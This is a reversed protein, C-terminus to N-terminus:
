AGFVMSFSEAAVDWLKSSYERKSRELVKLLQVHVFEDFKDESGFKDRVAQLVIARDSPKFCGADRCRFGTIWEREKQTLGTRKFPSFSSPWDLSLLLMKGSPADVQHMGHMHTFTALEYVCWLRRFYGPSILGVFKDCSALIRPFAAVGAATKEPSSQDIGTKDIWITSTSLAWPSMASPVLGLLSLLTSLLVCALLGLPIASPVYAAWVPLAAFFGDLALGFPLLFVALVLSIVLTRGVLAQLFLFERLMQVKRRGGDRWSHSVFYTCRQAEFSLDYCTGTPVKGFFSPTTTWIQTMLAFLLRTVRVPHQWQSEAAPAAGDAQAPLSVAEDSGQLATFRQLLTREAPYWQEEPQDKDPDGQSPLYAKVATSVAVHKESSSTPLEHLLTDAMEKLGVLLPHLVAAAATEEKNTAQVSKTASAALRSVADLMDKAETLSSAQAPAAAPAAATPAVAEPNPHVKKAARFCAACVSPCFRRKRADDDSLFVRLLVCSALLDLLGGCIAGSTRIPGYNSAIGWGAMSILLLRRLVPLGFKVMKTGLPYKDTNYYSSPLMIALDIPCSEFSIVASAFVFAWFFGSAAKGSFGSDHQLRDKIFYCTLPLGIFVFFLCFVAGPFLYRWPAGLSDYAVGMAYITWCVQILICTFITGQRGKTKNVEDDKKLKDQMTCCCGFLGYAMSLLSLGLSSAFLGFSDPLEDSFLASATLVSLPLAELATEVAKSLVFLFNATGSLELEEFYEYFDIARRAAKVDEIASKIQAQTGYRYAETLAEQAADYVQWKESSVTSAAALTKLRAQSRAVATALYLTHLNLPALLASGAMMKLMRWDNKSVAGTDCLTGVTVVLTALWVAAVSAIICGLGLRGSVSDGSEFFTLIVGVDSAYDAFQVIGIPLAHMLATAAGTLGLLLRSPPKATSPRM